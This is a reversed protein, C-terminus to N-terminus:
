SATQTSGRGASTDPRNRTGLCFDIGPKANTSGADITGNARAMSESGAGLPGRM